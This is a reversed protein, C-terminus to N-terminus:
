ARGNSGGQTRGALLARRQEATFEQSKQRHAAVHHTTHVNTGRTPTSLMSELAEVDDPEEDGKTHFYKSVIKRLPSFFRYTLLGAMIILLGMIDTTHLPKHSPVFDLAFTLNGLPVMVTMALWLINSSGYKLILIILVNYCLNFCVYITVFLPGSSCDDVKVGHAHDFPTMTANTVTNVGAYCKAGDWLNSGLDSLPVNAAPASPFLLPFSALFQFFAVWGNLYVADIETDALAKEKYVSSLCMPVCSLVMIISWLVVDNGTKSPHVISPWLVVLLGGAVVVAGFYQSHKYKVTLFLKTILMSAPIAAQSLLIVLSGNEIYNVALVQMVGAISDLFGMIAFKYKPVELAERTILSGYKKMPIIYAWSAPIYVATTLLNVFLPYNYMPIFELVQFVKNGLGIVVMLLFSIILAKSDKSEETKAAAAAAEADVLADKKGGDEMNISGKRGTGDLPNTLM